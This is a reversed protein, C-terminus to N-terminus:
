WTHTSETSKSPRKSCHQKRVIRCIHFKFMSIFLMSFECLKSLQSHQQFTFKYMNQHIMWPKQSSSRNQPPPDFPKLEAWNLCAYPPARMPRVSRRICGLVHVLDIMLLGGHNYTCVTHTSFVKCKKGTLLRQTSFLVIVCFLGM